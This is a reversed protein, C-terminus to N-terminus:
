CPVPDKHFSLMAWHWKRSFHCIYTLTATVQTWNTDSNKITDLSFKTQRDRYTVPVESLCLSRGKNNVIRMAVSINTSMLRHNYCKAAKINNFHQYNICCCKNNRDMIKRDKSFTAMDLCGHGLLTFLLIRQYDWEPPYVVNFWALHNCETILPLHLYYVSLLMWVWM